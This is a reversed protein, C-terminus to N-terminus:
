PKRAVAANAGVEARSPLLAGPEPRWESVPVVGPPILALDKFILDAFEDSSRWQASIGGQKYVRNLEASGDQRTYEASGHTAAVYSGPPLAGVVTSVVRGPEDEDLLFPMVAALILGIPRGFDLTDRVSPHLLIYEPNRLDADVYACKGEPKSALLARSHALVIPDNDVYVVHAAPNVAQAVEHVNGV